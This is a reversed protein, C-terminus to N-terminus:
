IDGRLIFKKNILLNILLNNFYNDCDKSIFTKVKNIEKYLQSKPELIEGGNKSAAEIDEKRLSLETQINTKLPAIILNLERLKKSLETKFFNNSSLQNKLVDLKNEISIYKPDNYKSLNNNIIKKGFSKLSNYLGKNKNLDVNKNKYGFLKQEKELHESIFILKDILEFQNERFLLTFRINEQVVKEELEALYTVKENITKFKSFDIKENSLINKLNKKHEDLLKLNNKSYTEIEKIIDNFKEKLFNQQKEITDLKISM